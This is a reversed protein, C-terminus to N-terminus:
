FQLLCCSSGVIADSFAMSDIVVSGIYFILAFLTANILVARLRRSFRGYALGPAMTPTLPEQTM